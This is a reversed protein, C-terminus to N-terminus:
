ADIKEEFVEPILNKMAEQLRRYEKAEKSNSCNFCIPRAYKLDNVTLILEARCNNCLCAKGVLLKKEEKYTCHPDVCQYIVPKKGNIRKLTHTHKLIM